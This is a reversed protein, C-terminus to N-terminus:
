STSAVVSLSITVPLTDGWGGSLDATWTNLMVWCQWSGMQFRYPKMKDADPWGVKMFFNEAAIYTSNPGIGDFWITNIRITDSEIMNLDLGIPEQNPVPIIIPTKSLTRNISQVGGYTADTTKLTGGTITQGIYLTATGNPSELYLDGRAM